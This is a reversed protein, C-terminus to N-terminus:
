LCLPLDLRLHRARYAYTRKNNTKGIQKLLFYHHKADELIYQLILRISPNKVIKLLESYVQMAEEELRIHEKIDDMLKDREEESIMSTDGRLLALLAGLLLAHKMSDYAIGLILNKILINKTEVVSVRSVSAIKNEIEIQRNLFDELESM